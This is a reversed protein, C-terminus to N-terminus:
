DEETESDIESMGEWVDEEEEEEKKGNDRAEGGDLSTDVIETWGRFIFGGLGIGGVTQVTGGKKGEGALRGNVQMPPPSATHLRLTADSSISALAIRPEYSQTDSTSYPSDSTNFSPNIPLVSHSVSIPPPPIPIIHHTTPNTPFSFLSRGTRLDLSALYSSRDSFFLEHEAYGVVLCGIGGERAVKWESVPKRQRTDYRRISGSKTGSVLDNEDNLLYTLCLHHIPPRLRLSTMPLNKAKWTEGPLSAGKKGGMNVDNVGGFAREIDLVTVDVEKGAIAMRRGHRSGAITTLPGGLNISSTDKNDGDQGQSDTLPHLTTLGSSSSSITGSPTHIIGAWKDGPVHDVTHQRVIVPPEEPEVQLHSVQFSDNLVVVETSSSSVIHKILGLPRHSCHKVALHRVTPQVHPSTPISVDTLTNPHLSPALFSLSLSM